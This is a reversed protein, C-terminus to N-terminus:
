KIFNIFNQKKNSQLNNKNFSFFQGGGGLITLDSFVPSNLPVWVVNHNISKAVKLNKVSVSIENEKFLPKLIKLM